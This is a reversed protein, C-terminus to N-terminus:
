LPAGAPRAPQPAQPRSPRPYDRDLLEARQTARHALRLGHGARALDHARAAVAQTAGPREQPLLVHPDDVQFREGAHVRRGVVDVLVAFDGASAVGPDPVKMGVEQGLARTEIEAREPPVLALREGHIPPPLPPPAPPDTPAAHLFASHFLPPYPFLPSIRPPRLM